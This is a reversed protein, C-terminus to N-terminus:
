LILSIGPQASESDMRLAKGAKAFAVAGSACPWVFTTNVGFPQRTGSYSAVIADVIKSLHEPNKTGNWRGGQAQQHKVEIAGQNIRSGIKASRDVRHQMM